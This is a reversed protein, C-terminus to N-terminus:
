VRKLETMKKKADSKFTHKKKDEIYSDLEEVEYIILLNKPNNIRENRPDYDEPYGRREYGNYLSFLRQFLKRLKRLIIM